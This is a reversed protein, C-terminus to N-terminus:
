DSPLRPAGLISLRQGPAQRPRSSGHQQSQQGAAPAPRPPPALSCAPGCSRSGRRGHPVTFNAARTNPTGRAGEPKPRPPFPQLLAARVRVPGAGGGM